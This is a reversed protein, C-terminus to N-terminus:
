YDWWGPPLSSGPDEWWGPQRPSGPDQPPPPPTYRGGGSGGQGTQYPDDVRIMGSGVESFLLQGIDRNLYDSHVLGAALAGNRAFQIARLPTAAFQAEAFAASLTSAIELTTANTFPWQPDSAWERYLMAAYLAGAFQEAKREESFFDRARTHAQSKIRLMVDQFKATIVQGPSSYTMPRLSQIEQAYKLLAMQERPSLSTWFNPDVGAPTAVATDAPLYVTDVTFAAHADNLCLAREGGAGMPFQMQQMVNWPLGASSTFDARVTVAGLMPPPPDNLSQFASQDMVGGCNGISASVGREVSRAFPSTPGDTCAALAAAGCVVM